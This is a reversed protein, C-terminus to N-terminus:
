RPMPPASPAQSNTRRHGGGGAMGTVSPRGAYGAMPDAPPGASPMQMAAYPNTNPGLSVAPSLGGAMVPGAPTAYYGPYGPVPHQPLLPTMRPSAGLAPASAASVMVPAVMEASAYSPVRIGSYADEVEGGKPAAKAGGKGGKGSLAGTGLSIFAMPTSSGDESVGYAAGPGSTGPPPPAASYDAPNYCTAACCGEAAPPVPPVPPHLLCAVDTLPHTAQPM